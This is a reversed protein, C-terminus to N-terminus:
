KEPWPPVPKSEGKKLGGLHRLVQDYEPHGKPYRFLADGRQGGPGEARLQLVITGDGEMTAVGIPDDKVLAGDKGISRWASGTRVNARGEEFQRVEDFQAPIVTTGVSDIFGWKGGTRVSHEGQRAERCGVCFAALGESFPAVFDYRPRIVVQGRRNFFGVKGAEVFRALNDHFPDPGNDVLFPRFLRRGQTDIFVWGTEDAAAAIGEASFENAVVFRPAIVVGRADRYGWRGNEEFPVPQEAAALIVPLAALGLAIASRTRAVAVCHRM